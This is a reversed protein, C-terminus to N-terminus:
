GCSQLCRGGEDPPRARLDFKGGVNRIHGPALTPWLGYHVCPIRSTAIVLGPRPDAEVAPPPVKVILWHGHVASIEIKEGPKLVKNEDWGM